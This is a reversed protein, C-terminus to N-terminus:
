NSNKLLASNNSGTIEQMERQEENGKGSSDLNVNKSYQFETTNKKIGDNSLQTIFPPNKTWDRGYAKVSSTNANNNNQDTNTASLPLFLFWKEGCFGSQALFPVTSLRIDEKEEKSLSRKKEEYAPISSPKKQYHLICKTLDDSLQKFEPPVALTLGIRVSDQTYDNSLLNFFEQTYDSFYKDQAAEILTHLKLKISKYSVECFKEIVNTKLDQLINPIEFDKLKLSKMQEYLNDVLFRYGDILTQDQTKEYLDYLYFSQERIAWLDDNQVSSKLLSEIKRFNAFNDDNKNDRYMIDNSSHRGVVSLYFFLPYVESLSCFKIYFNSNAMELLETADSKSIFFVVRIRCIDVFKKWEEKFNTIDKIDELRIIIKVDSNNYKANFDNLLNILRAKKKSIPIRIELDITSITRFTYQSLVKLVDPNNLHVLKLTNLKSNKQKIDDLFKKFDDDDMHNSINYRLSIVNIHKDLSNLIGNNIEELIESKSKLDSDLNFGSYSLGLYTEKLSMSTDHSQDLISQFFPDYHSFGFLGVELKDIKQREALNNRLTTLIEKPIKEIESSSIIFKKLGKKQVLDSFYNVITWDDEGGGKIYMNSFELTFNNEPSAILYYLSHFFEQFCTSHYNQKCFNFTLYHIKKSKLISQLIEKDPFNFQTAIVFEVCRLSENVQIVEQLLKNFEGDITCRVDIKNHLTRVQKLNSLRQRIIKDVKKNYVEEADNNKEERLEFEKAYLTIANVPFKM